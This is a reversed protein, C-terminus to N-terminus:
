DRLIFIFDGGEDGLNKIEGFRPIINTNNSVTKPISNFLKVSPLYKETNEKLKVLLNSLFDGQESINALMGSTMAKRGILENLKNVAVMTDSSVSRPNFSLGGFCANSILLTHKSNIKSLYNILMNNSFWSIGTAEKENSPIALFGIGQADSPLWFGTEANADWYSQGAFFIMFNDTPGVKIIFSDLAKKIDVMNVDHLFTVNEKEFTYRTTILNYFLDADSHPKELRNLELDSYNNIGIVLAYYEGYIDNNGPQFLLNGKEIVDPLPRNNIHITVKGSSVVQASIDAMLLLFLISILTLKKM